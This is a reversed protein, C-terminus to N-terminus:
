EHVVDIDELQIADRKRRGTIVVKSGWLPKVIDTMMEAPVNISYEKDDDPNYLKIKNTKSLQDAFRLYGILSVTDGVISVDHHSETRHSGSKKRERLATLRRSFNVQESLERLEELIEVPPSGAIASAIRREAERLEGCELALSAASRYLVSRSPEVSVQEAAETELKMAEFLLDSVESFRGARRAVDAQSALEMAREHLAEVDHTSIVSKM